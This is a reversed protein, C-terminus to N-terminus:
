PCEPTLIVSTSSATIHIPNGTILGLFPVMLPYDYTVSVTIAHGACQMGDPFTPDPVYVSSTDAMDVPTDSSDRVRQIIDVTDTPHLSGYTAGEQAADRIAVYSLFGMGFDIAGALLWLMVMLFVALEVMSQGRQDKRFHQVTFHTHNKM